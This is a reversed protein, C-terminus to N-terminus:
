TGQKRDREKNMNPPYFTLNYPVDRWYNENLIPHFNAEYTRRYTERLYIDPVYTDARTGSERASSYWQSSEWQTVTNETIPIVLTQLDEEDADNDSESQSSAVYEEDSYDIEDDTITTYLMSPENSVMHKIATEHETMNITQIPTHTTSITQQQIQIFEVLIHIGDIALNPAITWLYHMKNDNNISFLTFHFMRHEELFSSVMMTMRVIWLNLDMDRYKLIKRVMQAHSIIRNTPLTWTKQVVGTFYPGYAGYAIKADWFLLVKVLHIADM